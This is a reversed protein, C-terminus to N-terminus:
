SRSGNRDLRRTALGAVVALVPAAEEFTPSGPHPIRAFPKAVEVPVELRQGLIEALGPIRVSGGSLYVVDIAEDTAATWFFGLAHHIEDVLTEAASRLVEEAREPPVSRLSGGTKLTEADAMEIGLERVLLESVDRGGVPVDGTFSSVGKKLINISSFRAGIHVLAVVNASGPDYNAEYMNELAFHDVDVVVPQLGAARLADVYSMVIDRKAAVVLVEFRKGDESTGVVQYDLSVNELDEPIFNGAEYLVASELEEPSQAPFSMRKIIVAPGPVATIAKRARMKKAEVVTRLAEAVVSPDQVSSSHVAGPPTPATGFATVAVSGGAPRVELLKISASGIDACLYPEQSRLPNLESLSVTLFKGIRKKWESFAGLNM